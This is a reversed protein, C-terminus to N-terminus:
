KKAKWTGGYLYHPNNISVTPYCRDCVFHWQNLEDWQIRYLVSALQHCRDCSKERNRRTRSM